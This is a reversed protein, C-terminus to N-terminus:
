LEDEPKWDKLEKSLDFESLDLDVKLLKVFAGKNSSKDVENQKRLDPIDPLTGNTIKEFYTEMEYKQTKNKSKIRSAREKLKARHLVSWKRKIRKALYFRFAPNNQLVSNYQAPEMLVDNTKSHRTQIHKKLDGVLRTSHGCSAYPCNFPRRLEDSFHMRLHSKINDIRKTDHGCTKCKFRTEVVTGDKDMIRYRTYPQNEDIKLKPKLEKLAAVKQRKRRKKVSNQTQVTKNGLNKVQNKLRAINPNVRKDFKELQDIELIKEKIISDHPEEGTKQLDISNETLIENDSCNWIQDVSVLQLIPPTEFISGNEFSEIESISWAGNQDQNSAMYHPVCRIIEGNKSM